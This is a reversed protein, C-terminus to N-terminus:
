ENSVSNIVRRPCEPLRKNTDRCGCLTGVQTYEKDRPFSSGFLIFPETNEDISSDSLTSSLADQLYHRLIDLAAYNETLFLLYRNESYCHYANDFVHYHYM